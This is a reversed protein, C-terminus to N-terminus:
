KPHYHLCTLTGRFEASKSMKQTMRSIQGSGLLFYNQIYYPHAGRFFLFFITALLSFVDSTLYMKVTFNPDFCAMEVMYPM